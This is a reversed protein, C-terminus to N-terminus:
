GHAVEVLAEIAARVHTDATALAPCAPISRQLMVSVRSLRNIEDTVIISVTDASSDRQVHVLSNPAM